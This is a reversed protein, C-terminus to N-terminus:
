QCLADEVPWLKLTAMASASCALRFLGAPETHRRTPPRCEECRLRPSAAPLASLSLKAVAAPPSHTGCTVCTLSFPSACAFRRFFKLRKTTSWSAKGLNWSVFCWKPAVKYCPLCPCVSGDPGPSLLTPAYNTDKLWKQDECQMQTPGAMAWGPLSWTFCIHTLPAHLAPEWSLSLADCACGRAACFGWCPVAAAVAAGAPLFFLLLFCRWACRATHTQRSFVASCIQTLKLVLADVHPVSHRKFSSAFRGMNCVPWSYAADRDEFRRSFLHSRMVLQQKASARGAAARKAASSGQAVSRSSSSPQPSFGRGRKRSYPPSVKSPTGRSM